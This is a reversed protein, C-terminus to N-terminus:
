VNQMWLWIALAIIYMHITHRNFSFNACLCQNNLFVQRVVASKRHKGLKNQLLHQQKHKKTDHIKCTREYVDIEVM